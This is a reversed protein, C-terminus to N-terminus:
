KTSFVFNFIVYVVFIYCNKPPICHKISVMVVQGRVNKQPTKFFLKIVAWLIAPIILLICIIIEFILRLPNAPIQKYQRKFIIKSGVTM